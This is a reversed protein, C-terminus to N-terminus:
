EGDPSTTIDCCTLASSLVDPVPEFERALVDALGREGAEIIACSHHAALRCLLADAHQSDRLYRAGDLPHFDTAAPGCPPYARRQGMDSRRASAVPSVWPVTLARVSHWPQRAARRSRLSEPGISRSRSRARSGLRRARPGQQPLRWRASSTQALYGPM